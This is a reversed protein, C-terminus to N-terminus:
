EHALIVREPDIDAEHAEVASAEVALAVVRQGVDLSGAVGEREIHLAPELRRDVAHTRGIM